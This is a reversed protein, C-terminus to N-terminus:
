GLAEKNLRSLTPCQKRSFPRLMEKKEMEQRRSASSYLCIAASRTILKMGDHQNVINFTLSYVSYCGHMGKAQFFRVSSKLIFRGVSIWDLQLLYHTKRKNQETKQHNTFRLAENKLNECKFTEKPFPSPPFTTILWTQTDYYIFLTLLFHLFM